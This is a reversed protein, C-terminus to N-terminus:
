GLFSVSKMFNDLISRAITSSVYALMVFSVLFYMIYAYFGNISKSSQRVADVTVFAGILICVLLVAIVFLFLALKTTGLLHLLFCAANLIIVVPYFGSLVKLTGLVGPSEAFFYTVLYTTILSIIMLLSYLLAMSLLFSGRDVFVGLVDGTLGYTALVASIILLILTTAFTKAPLTAELANTPNKIAAKFYALYARVEVQLKNPQVDQSASRRKPKYRSPAEIHPPAASESIPSIIQATDSILPTGCSGCFNGLQQEYGCAHCNQM